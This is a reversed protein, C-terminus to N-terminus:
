QGVQPGLRASSRAKLWMRCQWKRAGQPGTESIERRIADGIDSAHQTVADVGRLAIPPRMLGPRGSLGWRPVKALRYLRSAVAARPQGRGGLAV